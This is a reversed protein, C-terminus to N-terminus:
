GVLILLVENTLTKRSDDCDCVLRRDGISTFFQKSHVVAGSDLSEFPQTSFLNISNEGRHFQISSLDLNSKNVETGTIM